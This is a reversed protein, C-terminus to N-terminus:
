KKIILKISNLLRHVKADIDNTQHKLDWQKVLLRLAGMVVLALDASEIDDRVDGKQQGEKLIYEITQKNTDLVNIIKHKLVDENKFIEESFIVSILSPTTKFMELIKLFMFEIKEYAGRDLKMVKSKIQHALVNFNNLITLLIDTKSEFHRYIAPESIGIKKSLNKITCGQIGNESILELAAEIIQTQRETQM